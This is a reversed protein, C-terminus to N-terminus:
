KLKSYIPIAPNLEILLTDREHNIFEDREIVHIDNMGLSIYYGEVMAEDDKVGVYGHTQGIKTRPYCFQDTVENKFMVGHKGTSHARMHLEDNLSQELRTFSDVMYARDDNWMPNPTGDPLQPGIEFVYEDTPIDNADLVDIEEKITHMKGDEGLVKNKVTEKHTGFRLERDVEEGYRDILRNRYLTAMGLLEMYAAASKNYRGKEIVFSATMLTLGVTTCGTSRFYRKLYLWAAKAYAGTMIRGKEIGEADINRAEELIDNVQENTEAIDVTDVCALVFGAIIAIGGTVLCIEPSHAKVKFGFQKANRLARTKFAGMKGSIDLKGM